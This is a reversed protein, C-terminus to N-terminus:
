AKKNEETAYRTYSRILNYVAIAIMGAVYWQVSTLLAGVISGVAFIVIDLVKANTNLNNWEIITEILYLITGVALLAVSNFCFWGVLAIVAGALGILFSIM